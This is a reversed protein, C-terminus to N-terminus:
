PPSPPTTQSLPMATGATNPPNKPHLITKKQNQQNSNIKSSKSCRWKNSRMGILAKSRTLPLGIERKAVAQQHEIASFLNGGKDQQRYNSM